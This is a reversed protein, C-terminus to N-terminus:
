GDVKDGNGKLVTLGAEDIAMQLKMAESEQRVRFLTFLGLPLGLVTWGESAIKAIENPYNEDLPIVVGVRFELEELTKGPFPNAGKLEDTM